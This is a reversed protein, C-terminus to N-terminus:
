QQLQTNKENIWKLDLIGSDKFDLQNLLDLKNEKNLNLLYICGLRKNNEKDLFYSFWDSCTRLEKNILNLTIKM